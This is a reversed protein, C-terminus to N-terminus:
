SPLPLATTLGQSAFFIKIYPSHTSRRSDKKPPVSICCNKISITLLKSALIMSKSIILRLPFYFCERGCFRNTVPFFNHHLRLRVDHSKGMPRHTVVMGLFMNLGLAKKTLSYILCFIQLLKSQLLFVM